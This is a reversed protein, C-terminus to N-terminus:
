LRKDISLLHDGEEGEGAGLGEVELFINSNSTKPHSMICISLPSRKKSLNKGTPLNNLHWSKKQQPVGITSTFLAFSERSYQVSKQFSPNSRRKM